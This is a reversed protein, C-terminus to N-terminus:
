GQFAKCHARFHDRSKDEGRSDIRLGIDSHAKELCQSVWLGMFGNELASLYLGDMLVLM